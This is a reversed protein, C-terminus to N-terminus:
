HRLGAITDVVDPKIEDGLALLGLLHGDRAVAIVTRGKEELVTIRDSLSTLDVARQVLFTPNGVVVDRGGISAVVGKGPLAEFADIAPPVADRDFAAKLVATALPHESSSEAAAALALLESESVGLAEIERVVPKGETLTGTKDLVVHTVLRYTQFAEGTRML